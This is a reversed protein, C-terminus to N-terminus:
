QEAIVDAFLELSAPPAFDAFWAYTREVGLSSLYAFHEALEKANGVKITPHFRTSGFRKRVQQTVAERDAEDVVPAIMQQVSLRASDGAGDRLEELRALEHVPINWWDAHERVLALTRPGVGGVTIPIPAPPTPQQRAGVLTYYEGDHDFSEGSWLAKLVTLTEAMRDVRARPRTSGVGFTQLEAPVSGWGLGLEFRGGSAHALSTTQRALVAPHRFADCLVLHGVSLDRTHAAIWTATTMAEFMPHGAAMPPSLHDMLSIGTFGAEEATQARRVIDAMSMRMLEGTDRKVSGTLEAMVVDGEEVM